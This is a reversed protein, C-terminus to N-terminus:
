TLWVRSTKFEGLDENHGAKIGAKKKIVRFVRLGRAHKSDIWQILTVELKMSLLERSDM